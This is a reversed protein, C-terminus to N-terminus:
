ACTLNVVDTKNQKEEVADELVAARHSASRARATRKTPYDHRPPGAPRPTALAPCTRRRQITTYYQFSHIFM